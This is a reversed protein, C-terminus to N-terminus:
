CGQSSRSFCPAQYAVFTCFTNSKSLLVDGSVLRRESRPSPFEDIPRVQLEKITCDKDAHAAAIVTEFRAQSEGLQQEAQVAAARATEEVQEAKTVAQTTM